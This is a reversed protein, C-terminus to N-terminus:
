RYNIMVDAGARCLAIAIAKGIGSNAGTVLAKQGALVKRAECSPMHVKPLDEPMLDRIRASSMQKTSSIPMDLTTMTRDRRLATLKQHRPNHRLNAGASLTM